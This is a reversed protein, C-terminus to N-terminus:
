VRQAPLRAAYGRGLVPLRLALWRLDGPALIPTGELTKLTEAAALLLIAVIVFVKQM